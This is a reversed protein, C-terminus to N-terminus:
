VLRTLACLDSLLSAGAPYREDPSKMLCRRIIRAVNAPVNRPLPAPSADLIAHMTEVATGQKFAPQGSIMEHFIAGFAFIDSRADTKRGRVQEPSMYGVTGLITGHLTKVLAPASRRKQGVAPLRKAIGFDLVKILGAATVLINSPKLDRHVIGAAHAAALADAIQLAYHLCTTLPLGRKPITERLPLGEVYEMVILDAGEHHLVDYVTIINPHNLASACQAEQLFRWRFESAVHAADPLVKLVVPRGLRIDDARYTQTLTGEGIQRLHDFYALSRPRQLQGRLWTRARAWERRATSEAIGLAKASEKASFGEFFRLRVFQGWLPCLEDMKELAAGLDLHEVVVQRPGAEAERLPLKLHQRKSALRARAHEILVEKMGRCAIGFLHTRNKLGRRCASSLKPYTEHVLDAPQLTHEPRERRLRSNALCLLDPYINHFLKDHAQSDGEHVAKLLLTIDGPARRPASGKSKPNM